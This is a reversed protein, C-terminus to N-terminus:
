VIVFSPITTMADSVPTGSETGNDFIFGAYVRKVGDGQSLTFSKTPTYSQYDANAFTSDESLIVHSANVAGLQISVLRRNIAERGNEISISILNVETSVTNSREGEYGNNGVAAVQFFYTRNVALNEVTASYTTITTLNYICIDM